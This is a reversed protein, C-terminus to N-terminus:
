QIRIVDTGNAYVQWVGNNDVQVNNGTAYKVTILQGSTNHIVYRMKKGTPIILDRPATCAVNVLLIGYQWEQPYTTSLDDLTYNADTMGAASLSLQGCIAADIIDMQENIIIEPTALNAILYTIGLNATAM